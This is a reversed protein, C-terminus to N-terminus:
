AGGELLRRVVEVDAAIQRSLAEPSDFRREARIRAVFEISAEEAYLEGAFDLIHTEVSAPWDGFTPNTGINTAAPLTTGRMTLRTAYVGSPPTIEWEGAVNATPFGLGRGRGAGHVIRGEIAYPRGLLRAAGEMNGELVFERIKTSSVAIGGAMVKPVVEVFMGHTNCFARLSEANGARGKGFTFDEGVFVAKAGLRRALFDELFAAASMGAIGDDFVQEVLVAPGLAAILVARRRYTTILPPAFERAFVRATHPRFALVVPVLNGARAARVMRGIVEAHGVHVGDFNGMALATDAGALPERRIDTITRM